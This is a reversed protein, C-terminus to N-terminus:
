GKKFVNDAASRSVQRSVIAQRYRAIETEMAAIRATLEYESLLSIDQGILIEDVKKRPEFDQPEM